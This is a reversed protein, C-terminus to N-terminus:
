DMEDERYLNAEDFDDYDDLEYDEMEFSEAFDYDFDDVLDFPNLKKKGKKFNDFNFIFGM